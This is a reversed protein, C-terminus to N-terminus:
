CLAAVPVKVRLTVAVAPAVPLDTEITTLRMLYAWGEPTGHRRPAESKKGQKNDWSRIKGACLHYRFARGQHPIAGCDSAKDFM